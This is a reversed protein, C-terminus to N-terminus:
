ETCKSTRRHHFYDNYYICYYQYDTSLLEVFLCYRMYSDAFGSLDLIKFFSFVIFFASMFHRMWENLEFKTNSFQILLTVLLIFFFVLFIPKYLSFWSKAQESTENLESVSISYKSDAQKLSAQFDIISVPQTMGITATDAAKDVEVSSVNDVLLLASRVKAACSECTMGGIKYKHIM